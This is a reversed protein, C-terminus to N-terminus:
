WRSALCAPSARRNQSPQRGLKNIVTKVQELPLCMLSVSTEGQSASIGDQPKWGWYRMWGQDGSCKTGWVARESSIAAAWPKPLLCAYLDNWLKDRGSTHINLVPKWNVWHVPAWEWRLDKLLMLRQRSCGLRRNESYNQFRPAEDAKASKFCLEISM